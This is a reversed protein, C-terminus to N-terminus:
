KEPVVWAASFSKLSVPEWLQWAVVPVNSGDVNGLFLVSPERTLFLFRTADIWSIAAITGFFSYGGCVDSEQIADPCLQRLIGNYAEGAPSWHINAAGVEIDHPIALPPIGATLPIISWKDHKSPQQDTFQAFAMRQGDPSFTVSGLDSQRVTVSPEPLSGDVPVSWITFSINFTANSELSGTILFARSDQTWVGTPFLMNTIGVAPYNLVDQRLNSGDVNIFSLNTASMLAIQQGDPSPVFRLNNGAPVLVSDTLTDADVVYLGEPTAHSEGEAQVIYTWGSFLLRRTGPIWAMQAINTSEREDASLRERLSEASVLERPHKGDRDVTWLASQERSEFETLQVISRRLFAVTQGDDSMTVASVNGSDFITQSQGTAEDWLQINGDRVFAVVARPASSASEAAPPTSTSDLDPTTTVVVNGAPPSGQNDTALSRDSICAVLLLLPLGFVVTRRVLLWITRM